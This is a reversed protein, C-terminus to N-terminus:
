ARERQGILLLMLMLQMFIAGATDLLVDYPSSTRSPLFSQHFEDLAAVLTTAAVALASWRGSWAKARALGRTLTGRWARFLLLSLTGYTLFHGVKRLVANTLELNSVHVHFLRLLLSLTAGTHESSFTESSGLAIMLMWLLPPGWWWVLGRSPKAPTITATTLHREDVGSPLV